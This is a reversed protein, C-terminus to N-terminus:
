VYEPLRRSSLCLNLWVGGVVTMTLLCFMAALSKVPRDGMLSVLYVTLGGYFVMQGTIFVLIVFIASEEVQLRPISSFFGFRDPIRFIRSQIWYCRTALALRYHNLRSDIVSPGLFDKIVAHINSVLKFLMKLVVEQCIDTSHYPPPHVKFSNTTVFLSVKQRKAIPFM